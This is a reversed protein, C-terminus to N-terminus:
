KLANCFSWFIRDEVKGKLERSEAGRKRINTNAAEVNYRNDRELKIEQEMVTDLPGIM